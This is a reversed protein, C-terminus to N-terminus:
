EHVFCMVRKLDGDEEIRHVWLTMHLPKCLYGAGYINEVSHETPQCSPSSPGM